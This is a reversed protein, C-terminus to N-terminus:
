RNLPNILYTFLYFTVLNPDRFNCKCAWHPRYNAMSYVIIPYPSQSCMGLLFGGGEWVCVCVGSLFRCREKLYM